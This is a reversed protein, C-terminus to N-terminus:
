ARTYSHKFFGPENTRQYGFIVLDSNFCVATEYPARCYDDHVWDDSDVFMVYPGSAQQLGRNRAPSSGVNKQNFIKIRSDKAAYEDLIEGSRDNSGDNVCIVEIERMTQTLLSDLCKSLFKEENYVPVIISIIPQQEDM